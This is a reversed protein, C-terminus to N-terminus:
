SRLKKSWDECLNLMAHALLSDMHTEEQWPKWACNKAVYGLPTEPYSECISPRKETGYVGCRNDEQIYPCYYFFVKEQSDEAESRLGEAIEEGVHALVEAVGEPERKRAAERSVYPLFISTFEQAFRDGENARELLERYSHESSALRCCQGCSHCQVRNRYKRIENLQGMIEYPIEEEVLKMAAKRWINEPCGHHAPALALEKVTEAQCGPCYADGRLQSLRATLAHELDRFLERYQQRTQNFRQYHPNM